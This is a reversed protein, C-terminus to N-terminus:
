ITEINNNIVKFIKVVYEGQFVKITEGTEHDVNLVRFKYEYTDDGNVNVQAVHVPEDNQIFQIIVPYREAPDDITGKVFGWPLTNDKPIYMTTITKELSVDDNLPTVTTTVDDPIQTAGMVSSPNLLIAITMIAALVPLTKTIKEM